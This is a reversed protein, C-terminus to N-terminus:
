KSKYFLYVDVAVVNKAKDQNNQFEIYSTKNDPIYIRELEKSSTGDKYHNLYYISCHKKYANEKIEIDLINSQRKESKSKIKYAVKSPSYVIELQKNKINKKYAPIEEIEYDYLFEKLKNNTSQDRKIEKKAWIFEANKEEICKYEKYKFSDTYVDIEENIYKHSIGYFSIDEDTIYVGDIKINKPLVDMSKFNIGKIHWVNIKKAIECWKEYDKLVYKDTNFIFTIYREDKKIMDELTSNAKAYNRNLAAVGYDIYKVDKPILSEFYEKVQKEYYEGYLEYTLTDYCEGTDVIFLVKYDKNNYTFDAYVRGTVATYPIGSDRRESEAELNKFTKIQYNNLLYQKVAEQAKIEYEAKDKKYPNFIKDWTSLEVEKSQKKWPILENISQSIKSIGMIIIIILLIFIVLISGKNKRM